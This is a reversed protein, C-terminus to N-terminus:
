PTEGALVPSLTLRCNPHLLDPPNGLPYVRGNRAACSPDHDGDRARVAVVIGRGVTLFRQMTARLQARQLETRAVTAGRNKWTKLFLGDIGEFDKTGSAIQQPTLGLRAGEAIRKAILKRTHADVTVAAARADLVMQRVAPDDLPVPGLNLMRIVLTHVSRLVTGYWFIFIATLLAEELDDDRVQPESQKVLM